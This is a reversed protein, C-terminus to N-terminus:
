NVPTNDSFRLWNVGNSYAPIIGPVGSTGSVYIERPFPTVPPLASLPYVTKVAAQVGPIWALPIQPTNFYLPRGQQDTLPNGLQDTVPALELLVYKSLPGTLPHWALSGRAYDYGDNPAEPFAASAPAAGVDAATLVVNGTQGNVSQVPAAPTLLETWDAMTGTTGANKIYNKSLDTRVAVDGEQADLALQAAQSGVVFTSTIALAPLYQSPIKSDSGLPTLGNPQGKQLNIRADVRGDTYYLNTGEPLDTTTAAATGTKRGKGDFQTKQLTGTGADAVDALGLTTVGDADVAKTLEGAVVQIAGSVPHWGKVGDPGTGYYSTDAPSEQDGQLTIVLVAGPQTSGNLIISDQGFIQFGLAGGEELESVRGALQQYLQALDDSSQQTSLRLFYDAWARTVIGSRPDVVPETHRPQLAPNSM